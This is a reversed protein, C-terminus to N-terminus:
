QVKDTQKPFREWADVDKVGIGTAQYYDLNVIYRFTAFSNLDKQIRPYITTMFLKFMRTHFFDALKTRLKQFM